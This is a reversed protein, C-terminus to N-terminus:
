SQCGGRLDRVPSYKGPAEHWLSGEPPVSGPVAWSYPQKEEPQNDLILEAPFDKKIKTLTDLQNIGPCFCLLDQQLFSWPIGRLTIAQSSSRLLRRWGLQDQLETLPM